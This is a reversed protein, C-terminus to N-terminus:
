AKVSRERLFIQVSKVLPKHGPSSSTESNENKVSEDFFERHPRPLGPTHKRWRHPSKDEGGTGPSTLRGRDQDALTAGRARSPTPVYRSFSKSIIRGPSMSGRRSPSPSAVQAKPAPPPVPIENSDSSSVAVIEVDDVIKTTRRDDEYADLEESTFYLQDMDEPEPRPCQRLSTVPPYEFKVTRQASAKARAAERKRRAKELLVSSIQHGDDDYLVTTEDLNTEISDQTALTGFTSWSGLRHMMEEESNQTSESSLTALDVESPGSTCNFGQRASCGTVRGLEEGLAIVFPLDESKPSRDSNSNSLVRMSRFDRTEFGVDDDTGDRYGQGCNMSTQISAMIADRLSIGLSPSSHRRGSSKRPSGPRPSSPKPM